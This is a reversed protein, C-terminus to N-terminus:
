RKRPEHRDPEPPHRPEDGGDHDPEDEEHGPANSIQPAKNLKHGFERSLLSSDGAAVASRLAESANAQELMPALEDASAHRLAANQGITELLEITDPMNGGKESEGPMREAFAASPWLTDPSAPSGQDLAALRERMARNQKLPAALPLVVTEGATLESGLQNRLAMRRVLPHQIPLTAGRYVSM